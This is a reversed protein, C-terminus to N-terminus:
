RPQPSFDPSCAPTLSKLHKALTEPLHHDPSAEKLARIGNALPRQSASLCIRSLAEISQIALNLDRDGNTDYLSSTWTVKMAASEWFGPTSADQLFQIGQDRVADSITLRSLIGIAMPVEIKSYVAADDSSESHLNKCAMPRSSQFRTQSISYEKLDTLLAGSLDANGAAVVALGDVANRWDWGGAPDSQLMEVLQMYASKDGSWHHVNGPTFRPGMARVVTVVSKSHAQANDKTKQEGSWAAAASVPRQALMVSALTFSSLALCVISAAKPRRPENKM